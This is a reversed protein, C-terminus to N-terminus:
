PASAPCAVPGGASPRPSDLNRHLSQEPTLWLRGQEACAAAYDFLARLHKPRFDIFSGFPYDGPIESILLHLGHRRAFSLTLALTERTKYTTQASFSRALIAPTSLRTTAPAAVLQGNVIVYLHAGRLLGLDSPLIQAILPAAFLSTTVGGDVHMEDYRHTGEHVPILVPPFVGPVSASAVLVDRFLKRAPEGGRAAIAGMDWLVTEQKDLDTTAVILHRGRAHERAVAAVM